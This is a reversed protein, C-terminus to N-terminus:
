LDLTTRDVYVKAPSCGSAEQHNSVTSDIQQRIYDSVSDFSELSQQFDLIIEELSDAVFGEELISGDTNHTAGKFREYNTESSLNESIVIRLNSGCPFRFAIEHSKTFRPSCKM